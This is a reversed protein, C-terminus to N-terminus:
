APCRRAGCVVRGVVWLCSVLGLFNDPYKAALDAVSDPRRVAAVVHDGAALASEALARGFGRSAGTIIWTQTTM